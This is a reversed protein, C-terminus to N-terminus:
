KNDKKMPVAQIIPTGNSQETTIVYVHYGAKHDDIRYVGNRSLALQPTVLKEIQVTPSEIGRTIAEAYVPSSIFLLATFLYLKKM